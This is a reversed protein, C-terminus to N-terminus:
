VINRKYSKFRDVCFLANAYRHRLQFIVDYRLQLIDVRTQIFINEQKYTKSTPTMPVTYILILVLSVSLLVQSTWKHIKYAFDLFYWPINSTFLRTFVHCDHNWMQQLYRTM